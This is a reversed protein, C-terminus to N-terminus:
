VDISIYETEFERAPLAEQLTDAVAASGVNFNIGHLQARFSGSSAPTLPDIKLIFTETQSDNVVYYDGSTDASSTVTATTSALGAGNLMIATGDGDEITYSIGDDTDVSSTAITAGFPIYISDGFATVSFRITYIGEEGGAVDSTNDFLTADDSAGSLINLGDSYFSHTESTASGTKDTASVADGEEDEVDWAADNPNVDTVLTDGATFAGGLNNIDVRIIVDDTTGALVLWDLDSFTVTTTTATSSAITESDLVDGNVLVEASNIIEGVGAGVSTFDVSFDDILLDSGGEATVTFALVPEDDTDDSDDIAITRANNIELGDVKAGDDERVKLEVDASTSFSEFSFEREASGTTTNNDPTAELDGISSETITAGTGDVFRVSRFGVNWTDTLDLSDINNLGTLAVTLDSTEGARIISGNDLTITRIFNDDDKFTSADVRAVEEGDFWISVEDAYDDLDNTGVGSVADFDLTLARIEIDSERSAEIEIGAVEKDEEGEGVEENNLGSVFDVDIISGAGGTLDGDTGGDTGGTPQCDNSLLNGNPCIIGTEPAPPQCDNSLLNGNPCTTGAGIPGPGPGIPGAALMKYKTISKPGFAPATPSIGNATQWKVVAAATLDGFYGYAVGTPMVLYANAELYQQLCTVQAGKSGITLSGSFECAGASSIGTGTGTMGLQDQLMQIQSMLSNILAMTAADSQASVPTVVMGFAVALASLSFLLNKISM